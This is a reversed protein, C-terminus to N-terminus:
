STKKDDDGVETFDADVIDDDAEDKEMNPVEGDTSAGAGQQKYLAEGLKM